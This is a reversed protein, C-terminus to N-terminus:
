YKNINKLHETAKELYKKYLEKDTDDYKNGLMIWECYEYLLFLDLTHRYDQYAIGKNKILKEYYYEIAFAKDKRSMYFLTDEQEETHAILRTLSTPYPLIGAFEWDIITAGSENALVNFPLFDDHCLTKPLDQYLSLYEFYAAEIADGNLYEGRKKRSELSKEFNYGVSEHSRDEWYKNQIEILADLVKILSERDCRCLDKGCAYEMLFYDDGNYNVSAIFRPAGGVDESFFTSYIELEFNKAKKLVFVGLDSEVRWVQYPENDEVSRFPSIETVNGVNADKMQGVIEKLTDM